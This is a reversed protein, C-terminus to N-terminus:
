GQPVGGIHGPYIFWTLLAMKLLHSFNWSVELVSVLEGKQGTDTEDLQFSSIVFWIICFMSEASM